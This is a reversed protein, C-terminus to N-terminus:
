EEDVPVIVILNCVHRTLYIPKSPTYPGSGGQRPKVMVEVNRVKGKNDPFVRTVKCMRWEGRYANADKLVCIDGASVNRRDIHWKQRLVLSPFYWKLWVKWFQDVISQVLVFRSQFQKPDDSYNELSQFPGSM